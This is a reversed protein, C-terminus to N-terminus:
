VSRWVSRHGSTLQGTVQTQRQCARVDLRAAEAEGRTTVHDVQQVYGECSNLLDNSVMFITM